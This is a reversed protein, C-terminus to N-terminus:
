KVDEHEHKLKQDHIWYRQCTLCCFVPGEYDDPVDLMQIGRPTQDEHHRCVDKCGPGGCPVKKM